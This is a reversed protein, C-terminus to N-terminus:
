ISAGVAERLVRSFTRRRVVSPIERCLFARSYTSAQLTGRFTGPNAFRDLKLSVFARCRSCELRKHLM